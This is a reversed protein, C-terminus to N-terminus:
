RRILVAYRSTEVAAGQPQFTLLLRAHLRRHAHVLARGAATLTLEVTVTRGAPITVEKPTTLPPAARTGSERAPLRGTTAYVGLADRCGGPTQAACSLKVMVHRHVFRLSTGVLASSGISAGGGSSGGSSGGGRAGNGAGASAGSGGSGSGAAGNGGAPSATVTLFASDDAPEYDAQESAVEAGITQGGAQEPRLELVLTTSAGAALSGVTCTVQTVASQRCGPSASVFVTGAPLTVTASVGSLPDHGADSVVISVPYTAGVATAAGALSIQPDAASEFAGLDCGAGQPRHIGRGDVRDGGIESNDCHSGGAGLAPSGDLLAMTEGLGGNAAPPALKPDATSPASGEFTCGGSSGYLINAGVGTALGGEVCDVAPGSGAFISNEAVLSADQGVSVASGAPSLNEALTSYYVYLSSKIVGSVGVAGGEASEDAAFTSDILYSSQGENTISLAGGQDEATDKSMTSGLVGLEEREVDVAGGYRAGDSTFASSFITLRSGQAFIGGGSRAHDDHFVDERLTTTQDTMLGGGHYGSASGSEGGAITVGEIEVPGVTASMVRQGHTALISTESAGAGQLRVGCTVEVGAQCSDAHGNGIDLEGKELAYTGPPLAVAIEEAGTKVIKSASELAARLPCTAGAPGEGEECYEPNEALSQDATTNVTITDIAAARASTCLGMWVPVLAM